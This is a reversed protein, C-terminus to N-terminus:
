FNDRLFHTSLKEVHEAFSCSNKNARKCNSIPQNRNCMRRKLFLIVIIFAQTHICHVTYQVGLCTHFGSRSSSIIFLWVNITNKTSKEWKRIVMTKNSLAWASREYVNITCELHSSNETYGIEFLQAFNKIIWKRLEIRPRVVIVALLFIPPLSWRVIEREFITKTAATKETNVSSSWGFLDIRYILPLGRYKFIM